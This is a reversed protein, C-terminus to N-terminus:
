KSEGNSAAPLLAEIERAWVKHIHEGKYEDAAPNYTRLEHAIRRLSAVAEAGQAVNASTSAARAFNDRITRLEAIIGEHQGDLLLNKLARADNYVSGVSRAAWKEGIRSLHSAVEVLSDDNHNNEDLRSGNIIRDILAMVAAFKPDDSLSAAGTNMTTDTM